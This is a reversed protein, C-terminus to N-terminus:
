KALKGTVDYRQGNRLIYVHENLLVKQVAQSNDADEINDVGTAIQPASITYEGAAPAYLTLDYTAQNNYLPADVICLKQNYAKAFIQAISPNNSMTMKGAILQRM